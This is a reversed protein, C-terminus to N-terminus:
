SAPLPQIVGSGIMQYAKGPTPDFVEMLLDAGSFAFYASTPKGAPQVVFAGGSLKESKSGPTAAASVLGAYANKKEYTGVTLYTNKSGVPVGSPLYRIYVDRGVLTVEWQDLGQPGAWYVSHGLFARIGQLGQQNALVPGPNNTTPGTSSVQDSSNRGKLFYWAGAGIGVLLLLVLLVAIWRRRKPPTYPEQPRPAGTRGRGDPVDGAYGGDGAVTGYESSM